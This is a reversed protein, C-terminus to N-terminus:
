PVAVPVDKVNINASKTSSDVSDYAGNLSDVDNKEFKGSHFKQGISAFSSEMNDVSGSLKHLLPDKSLHAIKNAVKLEHVAFLLAAGAKVISATRHPAGQTFKGERYPNSVWHHYCFYAIGLHAAFRTKDLLALSPRAVGAILAAALAIALTVKRFGAIQM